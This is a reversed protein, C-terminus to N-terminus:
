MDAFNAGYIKFKSGAKILKTAAYTYVFMNDPAGITTIFAGNSQVTTLVQSSSYGKMVFFIIGHPNQSAQQYSGGSTSDGNKVIYLWDSATLTADILCFYFDYSNFSTTVINVSRSDEEVTLTHLLQIPSSGGSPISAIATEFGTPFELPSSTGGRQRIADAVGTLSTDSVVYDAM